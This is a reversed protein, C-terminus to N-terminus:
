SADGNSPAGPVLPASVGMGQPKPLNKIDLDDRSGVGNDKVMNDAWVVYLAFVSIVAALLVFGVIGVLAKRPRQPGRYPAPLVAGWPQPMGGHPGPPPAYSM